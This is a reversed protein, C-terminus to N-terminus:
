IIPISGLAAGTEDVVLLSDISNAPIPLAGGRTSAALMQLGTKTVGWLRDNAGAGANRIEIAVTSQPTYPYTELATNLSLTGDHLQLHARNNAQGIILVAAEDLANASAFLIELTHQGATGTFAADLVRITWDDFLGNAANTGLRINQGNTGPLIMQGQVAGPFGAADLDGVALRGANFAVVFPTLNIQANTRIGAGLDRFAWQKAVGKQVVVFECRGTDEVRWDDRIETLRLVM